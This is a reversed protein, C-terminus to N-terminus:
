CPEGTLINEVIAKYDQSTDSKQAKATPLKEFLQSWFVDATTAANKFCDTIQASDADVAPLEVSVQLFLHLATM